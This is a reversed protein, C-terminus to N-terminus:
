WEMRDNLGLLLQLTMIICTMAIIENNESCKEGNEDIHDARMLHLRQVFSHLEASFITQQVSVRLLHVCVCACLVLFKM